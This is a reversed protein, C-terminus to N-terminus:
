MCRAGAFDKVFFHGDRAVAHAYLLMKRAAILALRRRPVGAARKQKYWEHFYAGQGRGVFQSAAAAFLCRRLAKSGSKSIRVASKYQGSSFEILNLGAVKYLHRITPYNRLDGATGLLVGASLVSFGPISLLQQQYEVCELWGQMSVKVQDFQHELFAITQLEMHLEQGQSYRFSGVTSLASEYIADAIEPKIQGASSERVFRRFENQSIAAIDAPLFRSLIRNATRTQMRIHLTFEPWVYDILCQLRQRTARIQRALRLYQQSLERLELYAESQPVHTKFRGSQLLEAIVLADVADTKLASPTLFFKARKTYVGPIINVTHGQTRLWGALTGSFPETPELGFVLRRESAVEACWRMFADFGTQSHSFTFPKGNNVTSNIAHAVHFRKSVDIGIYLTSM